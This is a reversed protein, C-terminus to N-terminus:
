YRVDDIKRVEIFGPGVMAPKGTNLQFRIAGEKEGIGSFGISQWFGAVQANKLTPRYEAEWATVEWDHFVRNMVEIVFALELQRGLARCSMLFTDFSAKDAERQVIIVGVIGLPGFRDQAALTYVQFNTESAFREIDHDSYRHTTLNFQNTKQTLQAVRSIEGSSVKRIVVIQNLSTLYSELDVHADKEASRKIDRQYFQVRQQDEQSTFLTDFLHDRMLLTPYQYLSKPVQLTVLQPLVQNILALERVSDDVFVFADLGLNMEVALESLNTAKDQWNIRYASLHTRRLLSWPHNDLVNFVDEQNNKSCLAILVGRESLSLVTKQFDYFARGPYEHADLQIGQLGDEGIIGGWLTNDCDLVLCKKSLGRLARVISTLESALADLFGRKFPSRSMYWYRYDMTEAEGIRRVLQEWDILCFRPSHKIVYDRIFGNLRVVENVSDGSNTSILIGSESYFPPIFTNIAITSIESLAMDAFVDELVTKSREATWGPLGYSPDLEELMLATVLLEPTERKLPSTEMILDQKLTGYGSFIFQPRVGETLLRYRLYPEIGELTINRLFGIRFLRAEPPLRKEMKDADSIVNSLANPLTQVFDVGRIKNSTETLNM